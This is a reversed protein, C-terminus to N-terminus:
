LTDLGLAGGTLRSHRLTLGMLQLKTVIMSRCMPIILLCFYSQCTKMKSTLLRKGDYTLGVAYKNRDVTTYM